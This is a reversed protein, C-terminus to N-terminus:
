PLNLSCGIQEDNLESGSLENPDINADLPALKLTPLLLHAQALVRAVAVERDVHANALSRAADFLENETDLVDLLTRQGIDFQQRYADRAKRTSLEHQALYTLQRNLRQVDNWAITTSQRIDRCAKDRVEFSANLQELSQRERARDAGGNFLNYNLMLMVRSDHYDGDIGDQNREYGQSAQLELTPWYGSKSVGVGARASRIAAISAKFAPNQRIALGLLESQSPLAAELSQPRTLEGAEEGVLRAYRASVDYLNAQETMLNSEALALRGSAQELDVRRGVGATTREEILKYIEQHTNLNRQALEVQERYRLVDYYAAIAQVAYDDTAALLEFYSVQKDYGLRRAQDRTAFGDFLMQRLELSASPNYYGDKSSGEDHQWARGAGAQLDVRPLYGSKAIQQAETSARFQYWRTKVDPNRLITKEVADNLSAAPAATAVMTLSLAFALPRLM